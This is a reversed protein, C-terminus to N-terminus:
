YLFSVKIPFVVLFSSDGHFLHGSNENSVATRHNCEVV